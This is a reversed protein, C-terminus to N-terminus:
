LFGRLCGSCCEINMAVKFLLLLSCLGENLVVKIIRFERVICLEGRLVDQRLRAAAALTFARGDAGM